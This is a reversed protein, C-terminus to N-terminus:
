AELGLQELLGDILAMDHDHDSIATVYWRHDEPEAMSPNLSRGVGDLGAFEDYVAYKKGLYYRMDDVLEITDTDERSVIRKASKGILRVLQERLGPEACLRELNHALLKAMHQELRESRTDWAVEVLETPSCGSTTVLRDLSEYSFGQMVSTLVLASMTKLRDIHLEEAVYLLEVGLAPPIHSVEDYYLYELVTEMVHRKTTSLLPQLLPLHEPNLRSRDVVREGSASFTAAYPVEDAAANFLRLRFMQAYFESRALMARHVPYYVVAGDDVDIFSLIADAHASCHLLANRAEPSLLLEPVIDEFDIEETLECRHANAVVHDYLFRRMDEKARAMHQLHRRDGSPDGLGPLDLQQALESIQPLAAASPRLYVHDVVAQLVTADTVGSIDVVSCSGWEGALNAAFHLSRAALLFRNVVLVTGAARLAIDRAALLVFAPTMLQAMHALFPQKEDVSKTIDYSLLLTKIQDTLAGYICRAGQFTDRDCVAGRALLLEVVKLHGCILALILPLYDWEDVQNVDLSPDLTLSDVTDTDGARCALLLDQFAKSTPSSADTATAAESPNISPM